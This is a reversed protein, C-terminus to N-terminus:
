DLYGIARLREHAEEPDIERESVLGRSSEKAREDYSEYERTLEKRVKPEGVRAQQESMGNAAKKTDILTRKGTTINLVLKRRGRRVSSLEDGYLQFDAFIVRQTASPNGDLAVLSDGHLKDREPPLDSPLDSPLYISADAVDLVTPVLDVLSVLQTRDGAEIGFSKPYRIAFPIHLLVEDMSDGHRDHEHTPEQLHEGHDSYFAILSNGAGVSREWRQLLQTFNRDTARVGDEYWARVKQPDLNAKALASRAANVHGRLYEHVDMYHVLLFLPSSVADRERQDLISFVHQNVIEGRVAYTDIVADFGDSSLGSLAYFDNSVVAFTDYGRQQLREGLTVLRRPYASLVHVDDGWGAVFQGPRIHNRAEAAATKGSAIRYGTRHYRPFLGTLTSVISPLTWSANSYANVYVVADKAFAHLGPMLSKGGEGFARDFRHQDSCVLLVSPPAENEALRRHLRPNAIWGGADGCPETVSWRLRASRGALEHLSVRVTRSLPVVLSYEEAIPAGTFHPPGRWVPIRTDGDIAELEIECGDKPLGRILPTFQLVFDGDFEVPTSSVLESKLVHSRLQIMPLASKGRGPAALTQKWTSTPGLLDPLEAAPRSQVLPASDGCSLCCLPLTLLSILVRM